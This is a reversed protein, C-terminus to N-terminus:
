RGVLDLYSLGELALYGQATAFRDGIQEVWPSGIGGDSRIQSILWTQIAEDLEGTAAKIAMLALATGNVDFADYAVFHHGEQLNVQLYSLADDIVGQKAASSTPDVSKTLELAMIAMATADTSSDTTFESSDFGFGGDNRALLSLATSVKAALAKNDQSYLGLVVWAYDFTSAPQNLFSGDEGIESALDELVKDVQSKNSAGTTKSAFLFKGALGLNIQNTESYLYSPEQVLLYEIAKTNDLTRVSSLQTLAELSFGYEISGESFGELYEGAIFQNQLFEATALHKPSSGLVNLILIVALIVLTVGAATITAITRLGSKKTGQMQFRECYAIQTRLRSVLFV